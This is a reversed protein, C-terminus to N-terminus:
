NTKTIRDVETLYRKLDNYKLDTCFNSAKLLSAAIM